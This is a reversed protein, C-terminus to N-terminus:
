VRREESRSPYATESPKLAQRTAWRRFIRMATSLKHLNATVSRELYPVRGQRWSDVTSAPLWGLGMLVDIPAVFGQRALAAEAVAIVRGGFRSNLEEEAGM